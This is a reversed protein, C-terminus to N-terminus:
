SPLGLRALFQEVARGWQLTAPVKEDTIGSEARPSAPALALCIAVVVIFTAARAGM